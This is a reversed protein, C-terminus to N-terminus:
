VEGASEGGARQDRGESRQAVLLSIGTPLLDAARASRGTLDYVWVGNQSPGLNRGINFYSLYRGDPSIPGFSLGKYITRWKGTEPDIAVIGMFADQRREPLGSMDAARVILEGAGRKGAAVATDTQKVEAAKVGANSPVDQRAAMAPHRVVLGTGVTLLGIAAAAAAMRMLRAHSMM